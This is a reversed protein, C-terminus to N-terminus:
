LANFIDSAVDEGIGMGAGLGLGTLMTGFFGGGGFAPAQSWGRSAM